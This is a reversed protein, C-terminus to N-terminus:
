TVLRVQIEDENFWIAGSKSTKSPGIQIVDCATAHVYRDYWEPRECRADLTYIVREGAVFLNLLGM